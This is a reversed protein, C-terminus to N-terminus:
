VKKFNGFFRRLFGGFSFNQLGDGELVMPRNDLPKLDPACMLAEQNTQSESIHATEILYQSEPAQSNTIRWFAYRACATLFYCVLHLNPDGEDRILKLNYDHGEELLFNGELIKKWVRKARFAAIENGYVGELTVSYPDFWVGETVPIERTLEIPQSNLTDYHM